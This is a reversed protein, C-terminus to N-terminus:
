KSLVESEKVKGATILNQLLRQRTEGRSLAVIALRRNEKDYHDLHDILLATAEPHDIDALGSVSGMQLESNGGKPLYKLLQAKPAPWPELAVIRLADYRTGTRVKENDAMVKSAAILDQWKKNLRADGALMPAIHESPWDGRLGLGNIIGGGIVVAQWDRLPQGERPLAIEIVKKCIKDDGAKGAAVAVRWIWPIRRYEEQENDPLNAAMATIVEPANKLTLPVLALRSDMSLSENLMDRALEGSAMTEPAAQQTANLKIFSIVDAMGQPNLMKELGEPMLSARTARFQELESRQLVEEKSEAGRLTIAGATEAVLLGNLTRGSDTLATYAMYRSDLNRNPDLIEQLFFNIPKGALAVLDPGVAHGLENLKHCSSCNKRYLEEGQKADGQLDTVSAYSKLVAERDQNLKGSLLKEAREKVTWNSHKLLQGRRTADIESVDIEKKEVRDLLASAWAEISVLQDIATSRLAPSLQPWADLILQAAQSHNDRLLASLAAAQLKASHRPMLYKRLTEQDSTLEVKSMNFRNLMAMAAIRYSESAQGSEDALERRINDVVARVKAGAPTNDLYKEDHINPRTLPELVRLVWGNQQGPWSDSALQEILKLRPEAQMMRTAVALMSPAVTPLATSKDKLLTAVFANIQADEPSLSSLVAARLFRDGPHALALRALGSGSRENPWAGLSCAAQLRVQADADDVLALVNQQLEDAHPGKAMGESLRVGHRRVAFHPDNLALRVDEHTLENRQALTALVQVRTEPRASSRLLQKLAPGATAHQQDRQWTLLQMAMDRQWGNDSDLAAVLQDTPLNDLRPWKAIKGERPRVRYIRGLNAGARTDIQELSEAPIWRPHEIVFRYMDLIWLSGDPATRAQVPRFWTDKSSVFEHSEDSAVHGEFTSDKPTLQVRHVILNVPECTFLNGQFGAGLLTDRYIGIGCAATAAGSGGSLKFLQLADSGPVLKGDVPVHASVPPPPALPNREAYHVALPYHRGLDSNDCGFWNDFDDRVRGQQTRGMAPEMAGTDPQIRFDRDGLAYLKPDSFKKISGGFLGCSGYVWGDLGYELSNVRAQFNDVGFGSYLKRVVDARGDNDTDEAYLIDPAACVLVGKRWVTVGTPFPIGDLFITSTDLIGNDQSSSLVRVRGAPGYTGDEGAPYDYMEAVYVKGDPGFDVAVPSTVLPEAAVLDIQLEPRTRMRGLSQEPALPRSGQGKGSELPSPFRQRLQNAVVDIIKQELGPAFKTPQDYYIMAGGGEYGGAKLVKESPIYCPCANAYANVWLRQGDLESKLRLGYESVVEGPLFVMGLANGFSWTQIRYDIQERLKEGRDLKALQVKAFYGPPTNEKARTELEDRTPLKDLPLQIQEHSIVLPGSIPRLRGQSLREAEAGIQEGQQEAIDFRDNMVGSLPNQDGACGVSTMAIAGPFRKEIQIQAYGAWDGGIRPESLTVCHCAYSVYILRVQNKLDRVILMPLDHDFPGNKDRRNKAFTAQGIGWHMTSERRDALAALAVQELKDTLEQTYRDIHAQDAAPIPEGFINPACGNIMPATHTHSATISLRQPNLGAKEKLRGAIIATIEAPIGLGDFTIVVAAEDGQGVALAKAWIPLRVGNSEEKRVLFGNM